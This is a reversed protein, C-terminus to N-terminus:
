KFSVIYRQKIISCYHRWVLNGSDIVSKVKLGLESESAVEARLMDGTSPSKTLVTRLFQAQMRVFGAPGLIIINM